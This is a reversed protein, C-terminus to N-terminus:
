CVTLKTYKEIQAISKIVSTLTRKKRILTLGSVNQVRNMEYSITSLLLIDRARDQDQSIQRLFIYTYNFSLLLVSFSDTMCHRLM